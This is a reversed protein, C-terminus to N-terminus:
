NFQPERFSVDGQLESQPSELCFRGINLQKGREEHLKQQEVDFMSSSDLNALTARMRLAGAEEPAMRPSVSRTFQECTQQRSVPRRPGTEPDKKIERPPIM